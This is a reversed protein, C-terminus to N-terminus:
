KIKTALEARFSELAHYAELKQYRKRDDLPKNSLMNEM